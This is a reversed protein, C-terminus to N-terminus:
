VVVFVLRCASSKRPRKAAPPGERARQDIIAQWKAKDDDPLKDCVGMHNELTVVNKCRLTSCANCTAHKKDDDMTFFQWVASPKRGRKASM